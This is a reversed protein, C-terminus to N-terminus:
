AGTYPLSHLRGSTLTKRATPPQTPTNHIAQSNLRNLHLAFVGPSIMAIRSTGPVLTKREKHSSRGRRNRVQSQTNSAKMPWTQNQFSYATDFNSEEQHYLPYKFHLGIAAANQPVMCIRGYGMSPPMILFRHALGPHLLLHVLHFNFGFLLGSTQTQFAMASFILLTSFHQRFSKSKNGERREHGNSTTV